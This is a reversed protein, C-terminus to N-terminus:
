FLWIRFLSRALVLRFLDGGAILQCSSEHMMGSDGAISSSDTVLQGAFRM